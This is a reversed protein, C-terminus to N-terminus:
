PMPWARLVTAMSSANASRLRPMVRTSVPSASTVSSLRSCSRMLWMLSRM